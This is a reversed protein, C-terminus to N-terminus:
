TMKLCPRPNNVFTGHLWPHGRDGAEVESAPVTPTDWGVWRESLEAEFLFALLVTWIYTGLFFLTPINTQM